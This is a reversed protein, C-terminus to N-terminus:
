DGNRVSTDIHSSGVMTMSHSSRRWNDYDNSTEEINTLVLGMKQTRLTSFMPLYLSELLSTAFQALYWPVAAVPDTPFRTSAKLNKLEHKVSGPLLNIPIGGIAEGTLLDHTIKSNYPLRL